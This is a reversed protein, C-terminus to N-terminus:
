QKNLIWEATEEVFREVREKTLYRYDRHLDGHEDSHYFSTIYARRNEFANKPFIEMFDNEIETMDEYLRFSRFDPHEELYLFDLDYWDDKNKNVFDNYAMNEKEANERTMGGAKVMKGWALDTLLHFYYGLFFSYERKTYREIQEKTFYDKTFLEMTIKNKGDVNTKFNSVNTPPTFVTWDENPVGSDPALNGLIFANADLNEIKDMLKDAIRLHVMWSAM